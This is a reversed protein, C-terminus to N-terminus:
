STVNSLPSTDFEFIITGISTQVNPFASSRPNNSTSLYMHLICDSVPMDIITKKLTKYKKKAIPVQSFDVTRGGLYYGSMNSFIKLTDHIFYTAHKEPNKYGLQKAIQVREADWVSPLKQESSHTRLIQGDAQPHLTIHEGKFPIFALVVQKSTDVIKIIPKQTAGHKFAIIHDM